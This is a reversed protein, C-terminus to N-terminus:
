KTERGLSSTFDRPTYGNLGCLEEQAPPGVLPVGRGSVSYTGVSTSVRCTSSKARMGPSVCARCM